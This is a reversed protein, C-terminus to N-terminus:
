LLSFLCAFNLNCFFTFCRTSNMAPISHRGCHSRFAISLHSAYERCRMTLRTAAPGERSDAGLCAMDSCRLQLLLRDMQRSGTGNEATFCRRLQKLEALQPAVGPIPIQFYELTLPIICVGWVGGEGRKSAPDRVWRPVARCPSLQAYLATHKSVLGDVAGSM